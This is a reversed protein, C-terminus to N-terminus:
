KKKGTVFYLGRQIGDYKSSIATFVEETSLVRFFPLEPNGVTFTDKESNYAILLSFHGYGKESGYIGTHYRLIVDYNSEQGFLFRSILNERDKPIIQGSISLPISHSRFFNNISYKKKEIQTGYGERPESALFKIQPHKFRSRGKEPLRLGLEAGITEQDLIDLKRRYLIWQLTAPVCCYPLQYFPRYDM